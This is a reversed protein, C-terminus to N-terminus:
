KFATKVAKIRKFFTLHFAPGFFWKIKIMM